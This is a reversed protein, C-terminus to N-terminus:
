MGQDVKRFASRANEIFSRVLERSKMGHANEVGTHVDVGAPHIVLVAEYVNEPTLGGAVIVPRKSQKVIERSIAWDHTKGTAGSAGTEPDFTDTIFADVAPEFHKMNRLAKDSKTPNIVLSKWIEVGPHLKRIEAIENLDVQGHLQVINCRLQRLLRCVVAPKHHYTILVPFVSDPLKEIIGAATDPTTDERHFNLGFPFGLHTAGESAIMLAEDASQIGAVQIIM